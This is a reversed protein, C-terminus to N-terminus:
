GFIMKFFKSIFDPCIHRGEDDDIVIVTPSHNDVIEENYNVNVYEYNSNIDENAIKGDRYNHIYESTYINDTEIIPTNDYITQIQQCEKNDYLSYDMNVNNINSCDENYQNEIGNGELVIEQQEINATIQNTYSELQGQNSIFVDLPHIEAQLQGYTLNQNALDIEDSIQSALFEPSKIESYEIQKFKDYHTDQIYDDLNANQLYNSSKQNSYINALINNDRYIEINNKIPDLNPVPISNTEATVEQPFIIPTNEIINSTIYVQNKEPLNGDQNDLNFNSNLIFQTDSVKIRDDLTPLININEFTKFKNLVNKETNEKIDEISIEM